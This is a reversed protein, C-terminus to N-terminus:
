SFKKIYINDEFNDLLRQLYLSNIKRFGLKKYYNPIGSEDILIFHERFDLNYQVLNTLKKLLKKGIWTFNSNFRKAILPINYFLDCLKSFVVIGELNIEINYINKENKVFALMVNNNHNKFLDDLFDYEFLDKGIWYDWFDIDTRIDDILNENYSCYEELSLYFLKPNRPYYLKSLM